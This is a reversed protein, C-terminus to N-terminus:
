RPTKRTRKTPGKLKAAEEGAIVPQVHLPPRVTAELIVDAAREFFNANDYEGPEPPADQWHTILGDSLRVDSPLERSDVLWVDGSRRAYAWRQDHGAFWVQVLAGNPPLRYAVSLALDPAPM